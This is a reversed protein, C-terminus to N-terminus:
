EEQAHVKTHVLHASAQQYLRQIRRELRGAGAPYAGSSANSVTGASAGKVVVYTIGTGKDSNQMSNHIYLYSIPNEGRQSRLSLADPSSWSNSNRSIYYLYEFSNTNANSIGVYIDYDDSMNLLEYHWYTATINYDTQTPPITFSEVDGTISFGGNAFTYSTGVKVYITTSNQFKQNRYTVDWFVNDQELYVTLNNRSVDINYVELQQATLNSRAWVYRNSM